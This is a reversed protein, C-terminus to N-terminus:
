GICVFIVSLFIVHRGLFVRQLKRGLYFVQNVEGAEVQLIIRLHQEHFADVHNKAAVHQDVEIFSGFRLHDVVEEAVQIKAAIEKKASCLRQHSQIVLKVQHM